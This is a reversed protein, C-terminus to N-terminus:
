YNGDCITGDGEPGESSGNGCCFIRLPDGCQQGACDNPCTGCDEGPDCVCDNNCGVAAVYEYAGMDPKSKNDGNGDQSRPLSCKDVTPDNVDTGRDICPSTSALYYPSQDCGGVEFEPPENMNKDKKTGYGGEVNSYKIVPVGDVSDPFNYYIISNTVVTDVSGKLGGGSSSAYNDNSAITCNTITAAGSSSIGAASVSSNDTVITNTVVPMKTVVPSGSLRMGGGTVAQNNAITCRTIVSGAQVSSVGGGNGTWNDNLLCKNRIITSDALVPSGVGSFYVGGGTSGSVNDQIICDTIEASSTDAAIGGGTIGATNDHIICNSITVTGGKVYVGGGGGGEATNHHIDCNTITGNGSLVYVGGGRRTAGDQLGKGNTLTFGDLVADGDIRVVSSVQNGNITTVGKGNVSRLTIAKSGTDVNEVYTGTDVLVLDGDVAVDVAGQITLSDQPVLITAAPASAVSVMLVATLALGAMFLKPLTRM